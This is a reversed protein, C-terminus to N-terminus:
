QPRDRDDINRIRDFHCRRPLDIPMDPNEKLTQILSPINKLHRLRNLLWEYNSSVAKSARNHSAM